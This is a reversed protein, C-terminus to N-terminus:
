QPSEFDAVEVLSDNGDATTLTYLVSWNKDEDATFIENLSTIGSTAVFNAKFKAVRYTVRGHEALCALTIVLCM